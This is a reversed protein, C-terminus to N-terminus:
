QVRKHWFHRSRKNYEYLFREKKKNIEKCMCKVFNLKLGDIGGMLIDSVESESFCYKCLIKLSNRDDPFRFLADFSVGSARTM